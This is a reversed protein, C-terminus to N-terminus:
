SVIEGTRVHERRFGYGIIRAPIRRVARFRLLFRMIPPIEPPPETPDLVRSIVRKQIQLQLMQTLNTPPLRRAQVRHLLAEDISQGAALAPALVNAAAVADQIALNIGVGGIPSMAHAADGILLLGPRHWRDLRDVRVKLTKVDDWSTLDGVNAALFPALQAVSDRLTSLPRSRLEKDTGKPVVYAAQWYSTRNLLVMMHGAGVIAFTEEPGGDNRPLRFWLVDMPAGYDQGRLGAADRLTSGRGDCAVIVDAHILLEGAPSQVRVGIARGDREILGVAEHSMRLDFSPYGRGADALLDLFNWQPVLSVHDFPKLGRFDVVPQMRTGIRVSLHQVKRQPLDEFKRLLGVEALVQLTSPHVTDGRFDRLFDAHKELVVVPLGSRALLYGLMM